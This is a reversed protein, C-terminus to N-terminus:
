TCIEEFKAVIHSSAEEDVGLSMLYKKRLATARYGAFQWLFSDLHIMTVGPCKKKINSLVASWLCRIEKDTLRPTIKRIRSDVPIDLGEFNINEVGLLILGIALSKMSFVITKQYKKQVMIETLKLWICPIKEGIEEPKQNWLKKALNSRLFKNLRKIKMDHLREKKYFPTLINILEEPSAPPPYKLLIRKLIPWYHTEAKGKLLFDNLGLSMMLVLFASENGGMYNKAVVKMEKYEPENYIVKNWFDCPLRLLLASFETILNSLSTSSNHM